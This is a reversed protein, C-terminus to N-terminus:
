FILNCKLCNIRAYDWVKNGKRPIWNAIGISVTLTDLGLKNGAAKVAEQIKRCRQMIEHDTMDDFLLMFEDGGYRAAFASYKASSFPKM